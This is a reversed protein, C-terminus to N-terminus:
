KETYVPLTNGMDAKMWETGVTSSIRKYESRKYLANFSNTRSDPFLPYFCIYYFHGTENKM